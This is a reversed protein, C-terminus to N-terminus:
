TLSRDKGPSIWERINDICEKRFRSLAEIMVDIECTDRFEFTSMSSPELFDDEKGSVRPPIICHLNMECGKHKFRMVSIEGSAKIKM